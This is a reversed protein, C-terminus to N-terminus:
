CASKAARYTGPTDGASKLHDVCAPQSRVAVYVLHINALAFLTVGVGILGLIIIHWGPRRRRLSETHQSLATM